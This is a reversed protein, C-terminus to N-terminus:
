SGETINQLNQKKYKKRPQSLLTVNESCLVNIVKLLIRVKSHINTVTYLTWDIDHFFKYCNCTWKYAQKGEAMM